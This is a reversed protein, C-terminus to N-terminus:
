RGSVAAARGSPLGTAVILGRTVTISYQKENLGTAFANLADDDAVRLTPMTVAALILIFIWKKM